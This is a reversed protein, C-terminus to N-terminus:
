SKEDDKPSPEIAVVQPNHFECPPDTSTDFVIKVFAEGDFENLLRIFLERTIMVPGFRGEMDHRLFTMGERMEIRGATWVFPTPPVIRSAIADVTEALTRKLRRERVDLQETPTTILKATQNRVTDGLARLAETDNQGMASLGFDPVTAVIGDGVNTVVTVTVLRSFWVPEGTNPRLTRTQFTAIDTADSM